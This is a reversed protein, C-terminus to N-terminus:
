YDYDKLLVKLKNYIHSGEELPINLSIFTNENTDQYKDEISKDEIFEIINNNSLLDKLKSANMNEEDIFVVCSDVGNITFVELRIPYDDLTDEYYGVNCIDPESTFDVNSRDIRNM